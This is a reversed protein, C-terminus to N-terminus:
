VRRLVPKGDYGSQRTQTGFGELRDRSRYVASVQPGTRDGRVRRPQGWKGPELTETRTRSVDNDAQSRKIVKDKIWPGCFKFGCKGSYDVPGGQRLVGHVGLRLM